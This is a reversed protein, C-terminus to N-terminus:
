SLKKDPTRTSEGRESNKSQPPVQIPTAAAATTRSSPGAVGHVVVVVVKILLIEIVKLQRVLHM